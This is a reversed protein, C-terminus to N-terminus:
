AIVGKARLDAITAADLDLVDALVSDTHQGLLPPATPEVVPTDSFKLPSGPVKISGATPHPIDLVMQRDLVEPASFVEPFDRIPAIPVNAEEFRAIWADRKETKLAAGVVEHVAAQNEVRADNTAFRPDTAAEPRGIAVALREFMADNGCLVMLPADATEYVHMPVINNHGNGLRQPPKGSALFQTAMHSMLLLTCDHMSLDIHQGRDTQQRAMLAALISITAWLGTPFDVVAGGCRVPMGDPEGTISMLGAMAQVVYDYAARHAMAGEQGFGSISCYILKPNAASVADYDIGLRKTVGPRFNEVLVDSEKALDFLLKQGEPSSLDLTVSKKNRNVSFFYAAEGGVTPPKWARTDDGGDPREVKIIEAGMDGLIQACFPGALVRGLDLIRTGNLIGTNETM